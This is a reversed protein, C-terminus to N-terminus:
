SAATNANALQGNTTTWIGKVSDGAGIFLAITIFVPALVIQVLVGVMSAGMAPGLQERFSGPMMALWFPQFALGWLSSFVAGVWAPVIGFLLAEFLDGKERMQAYAQGPATVVLKVTEVFAPGVGLQVRNEWPLGASPGPGAPPPPPSPPPPPAFGPPEPPISLM